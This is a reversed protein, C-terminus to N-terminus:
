PWSPTEGLQRLFVEGTEVLAVAGCHRDWDGDCSFWGGWPMGVGGCAPCRSPAAAYDYRLTGPAVVRVGLGPIEVTEGPTM